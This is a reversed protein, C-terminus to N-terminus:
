VISVLISYLSLDGEKGDSRFQGVITLGTEAALAATEAADILCVYRRGYGGRRWSLLYDNEEVDSPTLGLEAWSLLKRRQRPSDLFQWTSLLLRGDPALHDCMEALLRLRNARGPIHQLAALCAIAEFRGLRDLCGPRSLDRRRFAGATSLQAEALLEASFDVGVYSEIAGEAQLFRGLRGDGCGVDLLRRCPRPLEPLLRAFGPPPRRRSETFEAAFEDYFAQNLALLREVVENRM